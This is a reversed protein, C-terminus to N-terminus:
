SALAEPSLQELELWSPTRVTWVPEAVRVKPRKLRTGGKPAAAEIPAEGKPVGSRRRRGGRVFGVVEDEVEAVEGFREIGAAEVEGDPAGGPPVPGEFGSVTGGM